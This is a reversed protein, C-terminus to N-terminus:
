AEITEKMARVASAAETFLHAELCDAIGEQADAHIMPTVAQLMVLVRMMTKHEPDTLSPDIPQKFAEVAAFLVSQRVPTPNNPRNLLPDDDSM